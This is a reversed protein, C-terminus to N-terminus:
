PKDHKKGLINTLLKLGKYKIKDTNRAIIGAVGLKVAGGAIRKIISPSQGLFLNKSLLGAGLGLSTKILSGAVGPRSTIKHFADKILNGPKLSEKFSQFNSILKEKEIVEQEELKLIATKLDVSNKINSYM